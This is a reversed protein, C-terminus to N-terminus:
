ASVTGENPIQVIDLELPYSTNGTAVYELTPMEWDVRMSTLNLAWYVLNKGNTTVQETLDNTLQQVQSQFASQSVSQPWYPVANLETCGNTPPTM